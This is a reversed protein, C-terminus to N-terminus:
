IPEGELHARLMWAMKEHAEMLGTLFDATGTDGLKDDATDIDERLQRIIAEHDAVLNAIMTRAPPVNGPKEESLRATKTFEAMSGTAFGGLSRVREAVEDIADGVATYQEEFLEHLSRFQPGTVNWHYNRLKVYLVHLDALNNNLLEVVGAREDDKLGINMKSLTKGARKLDPMPELTSAAM